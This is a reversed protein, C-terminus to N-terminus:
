RCMSLNCMQGAPCAHGCAGCNRADTELNGECGDIPDGNCDGYHLLCVFGCRGADCRPITHPLNRCITSCTGCHWVELPSGGMTVAMGRALDIECGNGAQGDCDAFGDDCALSCTGAVCGGHQHAQPTCADCVPATDGPADPTVDSAADRSSDLGPGDARSVDATVDAPADLAGGDAGAEAGTADDRGGDAPSEASGCGTAIVALAALLWAAGVASGRLRAM